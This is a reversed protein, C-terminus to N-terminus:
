ITWLIKSTKLIELWRDMSHVHLTDGGRIYELCKELEPRKISKGSIKEKFIKEISVGDLQRAENQGVSSVRIYGIDAM